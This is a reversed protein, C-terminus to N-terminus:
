VGGADDDPVIALLGKAIEDLTEQTAEADEPELFVRSIPPKAPARVNFEERVETGDELVACLHTDTLTSPLVKGDVALIESAERLALEFNGTIKELAALFLNGFSMGKLDGDDFRYQFLEHLRKSARATHSLAILCNRADGPPLVGLDKRLKGSSRGSDTVTVVATLNSTYSKLGQLVIPLGTGGGLALIRVRARRRQRNAESLIGPLESIREIKYDPEELENKPLLSKFKGHMMQVTTMKLSNSVRIESHIRDGVSVIEQPTLSNRTMLDIYCEERATGLETDNIIIEDFLDRIGLLEIKSAQRRHVGTTVLFLRYGQGHLQTLTPVVDPFPAIEEVEDSNYAELARDVAGEPLGAQEAIRDFVSCRAGYRETLELQCTESLVEKLANVACEGNPVVSPGTKNPITKIISTLGAKLRQPDFPKYMVGDASTERIIRAVREMNAEATVLIAPTYKDSKAKAAQLFEGGDMGPMNLDVFMIDVKEPDYKEIAETGNAAEIYNFDALETMDLAKMLMKRTIAVDDVILANIERAM